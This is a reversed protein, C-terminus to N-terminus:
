EKTEGAHRPALVRSTPGSDSVEDVKIGDRLYIVRDAWAAHAANHTVVVITRGSDCHARLLQMVGEGTLSDLAGTPEDALLLCRPGVFARAIAARQREGGSVDDPFRNALHAIGVANLQQEAERYAIRHAVGDLELPLAVNELLSLGPLLNLDQFVFGITRRRLRTLQASKSERLDQSMVKVQGQTAFDLGGALSLLTSKGSGSPGMISVLEGRTIQLDIPGLARVGREPDGYWREVERFELVLTESSM